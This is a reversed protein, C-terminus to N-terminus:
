AYYNNVLVIRYWVSGIFGSALLFCIVKLMNEIKTVRLNRVSLCGVFVGQIAGGLHAIHAVNYEGNESYYYFLITIVVSLILTLFWVYKLPTEKWNMLLHSFYASVLAYVGSSAGLLRTPNRYWWGLELMVGTTGGIWFVVFCPIPGHVFEFLTGLLLLLSLNNWLHSENIHLVQCSFFDYWKTEYVTNVTNVPMLLSLESTNNDPLRYFLIISLLAISLSHIPFYYKNWLGCYRLSTEDSFYNM